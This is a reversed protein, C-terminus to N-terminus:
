AFDFSLCDGTSFINVVEFLFVVGQYVIELFDVPGIVWKFFLGLVHICIFM